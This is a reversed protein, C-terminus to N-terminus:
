VRVEESGVPQAPREGWPGASTRTVTGDSRVVEGTEIVQKFRRLDEGVQQEPEEGFLKAVLAGVKGGPPRYTMQVRVITGRGGPAPEFRVSGANEVDANDLSKWAIMEGPRDEVMEADWEVTTGAPANARWHSRLGDAHVQVSDLHKMFQPLNEFDRWFRYLEEAPRNITISKHVEMGNAVKRANGPRGKEEILRAGESGNWRGSIKPLGDSTGEQADKASLQCSCILDVATIGAIAATTVAVRNKDSDDSDLAVALLSLDMMDGGVRAWLWGTPRQQRSLIGIGSAIERLGVAMLVDRHAADDPVGILRAINGPAAVAGMGLAMSFLGLFQAMGEEAM